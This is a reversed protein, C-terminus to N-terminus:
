TSYKELLRDNGGTCMLYNDRTQKQFIHMKNVNNQVALYSTKLFLQDHFVIKKCFIIFGTFLLYLNPFPDYGLFQFVVLCLFYFFSLYSLPLDM